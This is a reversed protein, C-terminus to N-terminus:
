SEEPELERYNSFFFLLYDRLSEIIPKTNIEEDNLMSQNICLQLDEKCRKFKIDLQVVIPNGYQKSLDHNSETKFLEILMERKYYEFQQPLDIKLKKLEEYVQCFVSKQM